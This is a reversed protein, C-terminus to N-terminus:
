KSPFITNKCTSYCLEHHPNGRKESWQILPIVAECLEKGDDTLFYEVRQPIEPFAERQILGEKQLEKLLYPPYFSVFPRVHGGSTSSNSNGPRFSFGEFFILVGPM